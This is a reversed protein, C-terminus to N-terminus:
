YLRGRTFNATKEGLGLRAKVTKYYLNKNIALVNEGLLTFDDTAIGTHTTQKTAEIFCKGIIRFVEQRSLKTKEAIEDYDLPKESNHLTEKIKGLKEIYKEIYEVKKKKFM